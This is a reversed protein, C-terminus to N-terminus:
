SITDKIVKAVHILEQKFVSWAILGLIAVILTINGIRIIMRQKPTLKLRYLNLSVILIAILVVIIISTLPTPIREEEVSITQGVFDNTKCALCPGGCDVGLEGQNKIGDSCSPKEYDCEQVEAPKLISTRCSNEDKCVRLQLKDKSCSTWEGCVWKEECVCIQQQVPRNEITGCKRLDTCIRTKLGSKCEGWATCNWNQTCINSGSGSVTVPCSGCDSSCSYCDEGGNCSGDGCSAACYFESCYIHYIKSCGFFGIVRNLSQIVQLRARKM